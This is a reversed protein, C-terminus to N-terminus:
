DRSASRIASIIGGVLAGAISAEILVSIPTMWGERAAASFGNSAALFLLAVGAGAIAGIALGLTVGTRNRTDPRLTAPPEATNLQILTKNVARLDGEEGGSMNEATSQALQHADQKWSELIKRKDETSLPENLVEAPHNFYRPPNSIMNDLNREMDPEM